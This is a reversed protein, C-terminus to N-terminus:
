VGRPRTNKEVINLLMGVCWANVSLGAIKALGEIRKKLDAPMRLYITEMTANEEIKEALEAILGHAFDTLMFQETNSPKYDQDGRLEYQDVWAEVDFKRLVEVPNM